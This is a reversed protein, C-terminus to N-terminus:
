RELASKVMHNMGHQLLSQGATKMVHRVGIRQGQKNQKMGIMNLPKLLRQGIQM